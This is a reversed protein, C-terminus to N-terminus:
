TKVMFLFLVFGLAAFVVLPANEISQYKVATVLADGLDAMRHTLPNGGWMLDNVRDRVRADVSVLGGMIVLFAAMSVLWSGARRTKM